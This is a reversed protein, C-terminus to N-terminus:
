TATDSGDLMADTTSTRGPACVCANSISCRSTPNDNVTPVPRSFTVAGGFPLM